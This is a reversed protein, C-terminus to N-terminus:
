PLNGKARLCAAAWAALALLGLYSFVDRRGPPHVHLAEVMFAGEPTFQGTVSVLRASEPLQLGTLPLQEGTWAQLLPAGAADWIVPSRDFGALRGPRAEVQRLSAAYHLDAQLAPAMLALPLLAYSAALVTAAAYRKRPLPKAALAPGAWPRERLWAWIFYGLGFGTMALAPWDEPWYLGFNLLRWDFPAFLMVGNAWKTQTADLLLHLLCGLGMVLGARLPRASLCALAATAVLCLVLASQVVAYIRLDYPSIELPLARVLRQLIWPLDPVLCGTLIWGMSARPIIGRTILAHAGIHALANPM